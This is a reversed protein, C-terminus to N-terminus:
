VGRAARPLKRLHAGPHAVPPHDGPGLEPGVPAGGSRGSCPDSGPSVVRVFLILFAMMLASFAIAETIRIM